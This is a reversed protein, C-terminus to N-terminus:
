ANIRIPVVKEAVSEGALFASWAVMLARRQEILDSRRYAREVDSGVTHALAIESLERSYGREAAYDRFTSRMGHPVAPRNSRPDIWGPRGASLADEHMRRMVSTIAMDSLMGGRASAFVFPVDQFRPIEALIAAAGDPLPVRHEKGAKMRKAAITWIKEDFDIEAWTMGRVEGSRSACLALFELARAAIGERQKVAAFWAPADKLNLAPYNESGAVRSPKPLIADLNGRWRAPNDGSRHGAVTSWALVAEIRGRVRSATETKTLWIPELSRLVDPVGIEDVLLSGIAPIAYADLSSRWQAKHKENKFEDLKVTLFRDVAGAFTLGRKQAADLAARKAKRDEIPDVGNRIMEKAERARERAVALPIDPYAGLGVERRKSGVMARLIWTRSGAPTIQLLLGSVGGVAVTINRGRGPHTLRKVDLATLERVKKPM